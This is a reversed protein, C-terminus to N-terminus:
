MYYRWWLGLPFFTLLPTCNTSPCVTSSIGHNISNAFFWNLPLNGARYGQSAQLFNRIGRTDWRPLHALSAFSLICTEELLEKATGLDINCCTVTLVKWWKMIYYNKKHRSLVKKAFFLRLTIKRRREVFGFARINSVVKSFIYTNKWPRHPFKM